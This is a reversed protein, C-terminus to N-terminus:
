WGHTKLWAGVAALVVLGLFVLGKKSKKKEPMSHSKQSEVHTTKGNRLNEMRYAAREAADRDRKEMLQRQLLSMEHDPSPNSGEASITM